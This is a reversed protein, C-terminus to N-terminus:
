AVIQGDVNDLKRKGLTSAAAPRIQNSTGSEPRQQRSSKAFVSTGVIYGDKGVLSHKALASAPIPKKQDM